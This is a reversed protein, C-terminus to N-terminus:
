EAISRYPLIGEGLSKLQNTMICRKVIIGLKEVSEGTEMSENGTTILISHDLYM